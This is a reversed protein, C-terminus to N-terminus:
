LKEIYKIILEKTKPNSFDLQNGKFINCPFCLVQYNEPAYFRLVDIGMQTLIQRPIIHDLTLDDKRPCKACGDKENERLWISEKQIREKKTIM